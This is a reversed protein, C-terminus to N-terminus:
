EANEAKFFRPYILANVVAMYSFVLIGDIISYIYFQRIGQDFHNMYVASLSIFFLCCIGFIILSRIVMNGKLSRHGIHFTLIVSLWMVFNYFFSLPFDEDQFGFCDPYQDMIAFMPDLITFSELISGPFYRLINLLIVYGIFKIYPM